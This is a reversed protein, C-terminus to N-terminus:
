PRYSPPLLPPFSPSYSPSTPPKLLSRFASISVFYNDHLRSTAPRELSTPDSKPNQLYQRRPSRTEAHMNAITWDFVSDYEFGQRRFLKTFIKRLHQYDPRDEDRLNHVYNIYDAFEAPLGACLESASTAQKKELVLPYKAHRKAKLGQWPLRGRMFYVLMYGLAELDDRRSQAALTLWCGQV